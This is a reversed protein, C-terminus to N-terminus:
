GATRLVCLELSSACTRRVEDFMAGCFKGDRIAKSDDHDYGDTSTFGIVEAGRATFCDYLEGAADCFNDSYSGQDGVGFIAVKKGALDMNPLNTYLFDDWSTGSRMEDAGTHWTPAGIVLGEFSSFEEDSVDGIDYISDTGAAEQIYGAITETNGTTTAYFIGVANLQVKSRAVASSSSARPPQFALVSSFVTAVAVVLAKQFSSM